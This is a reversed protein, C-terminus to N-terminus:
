CRYSINFCACSHGRDGMWDKAEFLAMKAVVLTPDAKVDVNNKKLIVRLAVNAPNCRIYEAGYHWVAALALLGGVLAFITLPIIERLADVQNNELFYPIVSVFAGAFYYKQLSSWCHRQRFKWTDLLIKAAELDTITGDGLRTPVASPPSSLSNQVSRSM